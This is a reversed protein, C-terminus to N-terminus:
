SLDQPSCLKGCKLIKPYVIIGLKKELKSFKHMEFEDGIVVNIGNKNARGTRGSRHIFFDDNSPLDMQIVHTVETFDLGRAALDSTILIKEKGSRFRDLVAKRQIKDTKAHLAACKIKKFELKQYINEVQDLKSTFVLVKKCKEANLFSRLTDIKDRKQAFIAWHTIRKRLIDEQPLEHFDLIYNERMKCLSSELIKKTNPTVTASCGIVQVDKNLLKFLELTEDRLEPCLLRDVEDFVITKVSTTKLKKLFILEKIRSCSGIVIQPKEKLNEIQRKLPTGGFCLVAKCQKVNCIKLLQNKIQSCLEHTPSAIIVTPNKETFDIRQVIPLLFAFTKGTGTESQFLFSKNEFVEPIIKRQVATPTLINENKLKEILEESIGLLSFGNESNLTQEM